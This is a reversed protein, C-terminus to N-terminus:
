NGCCALAKASSGALHEALNIAADCANHLLM